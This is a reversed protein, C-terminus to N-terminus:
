PRQAHTERARKAGTLRAAHPRFVRPSIQKTNETRHLLFFPSLFSITALLYILYVLNQM